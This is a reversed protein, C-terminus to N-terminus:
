SEPVSIKDKQTETLNLNVQDSIAFQTITFTLLITLPGSAWRNVVQVLM